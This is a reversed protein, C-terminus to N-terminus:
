WDQCHILWFCQSLISPLTPSAQFAGKLRNQKLFLVPSQWLIFPKISNLWPSLTPNQWTVLYVRRCRTEQLDHLCIKFFYTVLSNMQLYKPNLGTWRFALCCMGANTPSGLPFLPYLSSRLSPYFAVWKTEVQLHTNHYILWHQKLTNGSPPVTGAQVGSKRKMALGWHTGIRCPSFASPDLLVILCWQKWHASSFETQSRLYVNIKYILSFVRVQM